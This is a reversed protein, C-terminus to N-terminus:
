SAAEDGLADLASGVAGHQARDSEAVAIEVLGDDADGVAVAGDSGAVGAQVIQGRAGRFRQALGFGHRLDEAGDGDAVADGHAGLAHLIRQHRAFHDGVGDFGHAARRAHVAQQGDAAAVLVHGARHDGDRPQINGRDENVAAGDLGAVAVAFIEGDTLAKSATPSYLAPRISWASSSSTSRCEQGPTPEQPPMNVAFVMDEAMSAIPM